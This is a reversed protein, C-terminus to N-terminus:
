RYVKEIRVTPKLGSLPLEGRDIKNGNHKGPRLNIKYEVTPSSPLEADLAESSGRAISTRM